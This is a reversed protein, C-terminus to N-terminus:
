KKGGSIGLWGVLSHLRSSLSFHAISSSPVSAQSALLTVSDVPLGKMDSM